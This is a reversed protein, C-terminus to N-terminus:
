CATSATWVFGVSVLEMWCSGVEVQHYRSGGLAALVRGGSSLAAMLARGGPSSLAALM